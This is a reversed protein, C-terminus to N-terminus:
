STVATLTLRGTIWDSPATLLQIDSLNIDGSPVTLTASRVGAVVEIVELLDGLTLIGDGSIYEIGGIPFLEVFDNLAITLNSQM